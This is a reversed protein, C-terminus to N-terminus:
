LSMSMIDKMTEKIGGSRKAIMEAGPAQIMMVNYNRTAVFPSLLSLFLIIFIIFIFYDFRQKRQKGGSIKRRQPQGSHSTINQMCVAPYTCTGASTTASFDRWGISPSCPISRTSRLSRLTGLAAPPFYINYNLM